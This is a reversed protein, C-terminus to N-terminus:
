GKLAWQEDESSLIIFSVEPPIILSLLFFLFDPYLSNGTGSPGPSVYLGNETNFSTPLWTAKYSLDCSCVIAKQKM